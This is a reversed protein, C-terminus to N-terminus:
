YSKTHRKRTLSCRVECRAGVAENSGAASVNRESYSGKTSKDDECAINAQCGESYWGVISVIIFHQM